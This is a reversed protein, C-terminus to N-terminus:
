EIGLCVFRCLMIVNRSINITKHLGMRIRHSFCGRESVLRCRNCCKWASVGACLLCMVNLLSAQMLEFTGAAYDPGADHSM